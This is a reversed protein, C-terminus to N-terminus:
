FALYRLFEHADEQKGHGLRAGIGHVQSMISEPDLVSEGKEGRLILSELECTFCESKSGLNCIFSWSFLNLISLNPFCIFWQPLPFVHYAIFDKFSIHALPVLLHWVSSCWMRM